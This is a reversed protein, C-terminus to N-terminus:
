ARKIEDQSAERHIALVAYLDVDDDGRIAEEEAMAHPKKNQGCLHVQGYTKNNKNAQWKEEKKQPVNCARATAYRTAHACRFSSIPCLGLLFLYPFLSFSSLVLLLASIGVESLSGAM